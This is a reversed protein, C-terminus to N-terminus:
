QPHPGGDGGRREMADLIRRTDRRLEAIEANQQELRTRFERNMEEIRADQQEMRSYIRLIERRYEAVDDVQRAVVQTLQVVMAAVRGIEERLDKVSATTWGMHDRLIQALGELTL